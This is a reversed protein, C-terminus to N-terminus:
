SSEMWQIEHEIIRVLAQRNQLLSRHLWHVRLHSLSNFLDWDLYADPLEDELQSSSTTTTTTTTNATPAGKKPHKKTYLLIVSAGRPLFMATVAGGGSYTVLISTKTVIELQEALTLNYFVRGQVDARPIGNAIWEM